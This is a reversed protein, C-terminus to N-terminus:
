YPIPKFNYGKTKAWKIYAPLIVKLTPYAKESDHFVLISGKRTHKKLHELCFKPSLRKDFDGSLVDWMIIKFGKHILTSAQSPKIRGHPPRFLNTNTLKQCQDINKFYARNKTKWGVLHNFSHNGIHHKSKLVKQAIDPFKEIKDGILFFTAPINEHELLQLVWDTIEPSPGDDFTLFIDPTDTNIRWVYSKFLTQIWKPSKMFYSVM